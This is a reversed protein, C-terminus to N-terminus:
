QLMRLSAAILEVARLVCRGSIVATNYDLDETTDDMTHYNAPMVPRNDEIRRWCINAAELGAEQFPLHDSEGHYFIAAPQMGYLEELAQSVSRTVTNELAPLYAADVCQGNENKGGLMNMVFQANDSPSAISVDMNFAGAHRAKDVDSLSEIYARAGHYGNEESGLFVLRIECDPISGNEAMYRAMELLIAVSAANDRAGLTTSVSDYHAVISFLPLDADANLVACINESHMDQFGQFPMRLLTADEASYGMSELRGMIWDATAVEQATGTVRIGIANCIYETDARINDAQLDYATQAFAPVGLAILIFSLFWSVFIRM